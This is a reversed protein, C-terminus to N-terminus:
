IIECDQPAFMILFGKFVLWYVFCTLHQQENELTRPTLAELVHKDSLTCSETKYVCFVTEKRRKKVNSQGAPNRISFLEKSRRTELLGAHGQEPLVVSMGCIPRHQSKPETGAAPSITCTLVVEEFDLKWLLASPSLGQSM